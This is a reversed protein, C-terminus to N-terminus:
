SMGCYVRGLGAVQREQEECGEEEDRNKEKRKKKKVCNKQLMMVIAIRHCKSLLLMTNITCYDGTHWMQMLLHLIYM